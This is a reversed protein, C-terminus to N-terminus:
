KRPATVFLIKSLGSERAMAMARAVNGYETREDARIRVPTSPDDAAAQVLKERIAAEESRTGDISMAGTRDVEITLDKKPAELKEARDTPLSLGFAEHMVPATIIFVILLVLMIDVMPTVNIDGMVRNEAEPLLRRARSMM